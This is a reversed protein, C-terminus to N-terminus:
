SEYLVKCVCVFVCDCKKRGAYGESRRLRVSSLFLLQSMDFTVLGM